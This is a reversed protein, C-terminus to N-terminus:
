RAAVRSLELRVTLRTGRAPESDITHTGGLLRVRESIGALGFGRDYRGEPEAASPSIGSGDDQVTIVLATGNRQIEVRATTAASHKVVNNLGEQVIRYLSTESEQSLLGDIPALDKSVQISTSDGVREIMSEIAAVLGIRDLEYPRLNHAIERVEEIASTATASIEELQERVHEPDSIARACISVRNKIIALSQGLGDHLEAAVRRHEEDQVLLLRGAIHQLARDAKSKQREARSRRERQVLLAGILITQTLCLVTVGVIRWKYNEWFTPVRYRVISQAPLDDERIGWRKLERWDFAVVNNRAETIPIDQPREGMLIRVGLEAIQRGILEESVLSGGVIGRGLFAELFSYMPANAALAITAVWDVPLFSMGAGDRTVVLAYIISHSPLSAVRSQVAALPQGSLYTFSLRKELDQFQQRALTEYFRDTGSAGSIVFVNKADPHLQLAVDLSARLDLLDYFGTFGPGLHLDNLRSRGGSGGFVVPVGPFLTAAHRTVFDFANGAITAILDFRVGAYKRSLFDHLASDYSPESLRGPDIYESYLDVPVGLGENLTSRFAREAAARAPSDVRTTYIVLVRKQPLQSTAAQASLCVLAAVVAVQRLWKKVAALRGRSGPRYQATLHASRFQLRRDCQRAATVASPSHRM